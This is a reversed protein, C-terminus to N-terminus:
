SWKKVEDIYQRYFQEFTESKEFIYSKEGYIVENLENLLNIAGSPTGFSKNYIVYEGCGFPVYQEAMKEDVDFANMVSPINVEDNYLIPYTAGDGILELGKQYLAENMGDYCRLTLQPLTDHMQRSTEIALMAFRDASEPNKRSKGGLIIRADFTNKREIILSWVSKTIRLAFGENLAGCDIDNAYYLGIYGDMRGYNFTGSFVFFIYALQMAQWFTKPPDNAIYRLNEGMKHLQEGWEGRHAEALESCQDAYRLCSKQIIFLVGELGKYFPPNKEELVTCENMLGAIGKELLKSPDMQAGSMRYLPFGTGREVNFDGHTMMQKQEDSYKKFTSDRTTKGNWYKLLYNLKSKDDESAGDDSIMNKVWNVNCYYGVGGGAAQPLFGIPMRDLRGVILDGERPPLMCFEIQKKLCELERSYINNKNEDYTKTFDMLFDVTSSAMYFVGKRM